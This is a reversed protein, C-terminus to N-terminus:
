SLLTGPDIVVNASTGLPGTNSNLTDSLLGARFDQLASESTRRQLEEIRKRAAPPQTMNFSAGISVQTVGLRNVGGSYTVQVVKGNTDIARFPTYEKQKPAVLNQYQKLNEVASALLIADVQPTNIITTGIQSFDNYDSLYNQVRYEAVDSRNVVGNAIGLTNGTALTYRRHYRSGYPANRYGYGCRVYMKGPKLDGDKQLAPKGLSIHGRKQDISFGHKWITMKIPTKNMLFEGDEFFMGAVEAALKTNNQLEDLTNDARSPMLPTIIRPDVATEGPGIVVYQPLAAATQAAIMAAETGSSIVPTGALSAILLTNVLMYQSASNNCLTVGVYQTGDWVVMRQNSLNYVKSSDGKDPLNGTNGVAAEITFGPFFKQGESFGIVRFLRCISKNALSIMKNIEEEPLTGRKTGQIASAYGTRPDDVWGYDPKYSLMGIPKYSGDMDIGIAETVLWSDFVTDGAFASIYDPAPNIILGSDVYQMLGTDDPEAGIHDIVIKVTDNNLLLVACGLMACLKDLEVAAPTYHWFVKPALEVDTPLVSVDYNPDGQSDREGLADLLLAALERPNKETGAILLNKDDRVNYQGFVTPTKWKWRRDMVQFTIDKTAGIKQMPNRLFCNWFTVIVDDQNEVTTSSNAIVLHGVASSPLTTGSRWTLQGVDPSTGHSRSMSFAVQVEVGGDGPGLTVYPSEDSTRDPDCYYFAKCRKIM